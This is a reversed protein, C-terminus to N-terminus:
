ELSLEARMTHSEGPRLGIAAAGVNATEVCVMGRWEDAGFDSFARARAAGPNWVVTSRSGAKGIVITRAWGPDVIRCTATTELYVRDTEGSFRIRENPQHKRAFGAVKDLYDTEQLGDISLQQIASVSCYTHLAEEFTFPEGGTNEVELTMALTAGISLRYVVRCRHPWAPSTREDTELVFSLRVAGDASEAAEDLIWDSLRAFGHAPATRDTAHPGFWPFCIPVGGRIAKDERFTSHASLWLVPARAHAPTWQAIHAGHFFVQATAARTAVELHPLGNEPNRVRVSSPLPSRLHRDATRRESMRCV